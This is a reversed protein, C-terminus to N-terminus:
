SNCALHRSAPSCRGPRREWASPGGARRPTPSCSGRPASGRCPQTRARRSGARPPPWRRQGQRRPEPRPQRSGAPRQAPRRVGSGARLSLLAPRRGAGGRGSARHVLRGAGLGLGSGLGGRVGLPLDQAARGRPRRLVHLGAERDRGRGADPLDRDLQQDVVADDDVVVELAGAAALDGEGVQDAPRQHLRQLRQRLHVRRVVLGLALRGQDLRGVDVEAQGDVHLLRVAGPLQQHRRDLGGLRHREGLEPHGVLVDDPPGPVVLQRQRSKWPVVILRVLGPVM